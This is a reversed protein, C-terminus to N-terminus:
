ITSMTAAGGDGYIFASGETGMVVLGFHPRLVEDTARNAKWSVTKDGYDFSTVLTDYFQWDDKFQYRGGDSYREESLGSRAGLPM